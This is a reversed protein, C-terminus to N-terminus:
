GGLQNAARMLDNISPPYDQCMALEGLGFMLSRLEDWYIGRDGDPRHLLDFTTGGDMDIADYSEPAVKQRLEKQRQHHTCRQIPAM